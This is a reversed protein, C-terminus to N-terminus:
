NKRLVCGVPKKETFSLNKRNVLATLVDRLYFETAEEAMQPNNDIAGRYRVIWEGKDPQVVVVEPNRSVSLFQSVKQEKDALYPFPFKKANARKAMEEVSDDINDAATNSNIFLFYVKQSKFQNALTILRDEYLKSYPCYNSTFILVVARSGSLDALSVTKGEVAEPLSFNEVVTQSHVGLSALLLLLFAPKQYFFTM